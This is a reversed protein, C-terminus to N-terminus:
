RMRRSANAGMPKAPLVEGMADTAVAGPATEGAPLGASSFTGVSAIVEIPFRATGACRLAEYKAGSRVSAGPVDLGTGTTTSAVLVGTPAGVTIVTRKIGEPAAGVCTGTGAALWVPLKALEEAVAFTLRGTPWTVTMWANAAIVRVPWVALRNGSISPSGTSRTVTAAVGPWAEVSLRTVREPLSTGSSWSGASSRM